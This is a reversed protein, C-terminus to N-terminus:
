VIAALNEISRELMKQYVGGVAYKKFHESARHAELAKGDHYQEYVIVINPDDELHHPIYNVCGPEQRSAAALARLSDAVEARDEPAFKMRAVFSIM